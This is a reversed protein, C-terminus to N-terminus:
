SARRLPRLNIPLRRAQSLDWTMQVHLWTEATAGFVQSLRIALEPTIGAKLNVVEDLVSEPIELAKAAEAVSLQLSPLFDDRIITGPHIVEDPDTIFSTHVITDPRYFKGREARSFDYEPKMDDDTM